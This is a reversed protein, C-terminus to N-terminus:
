YIVKGSDILVEMMADFGDGIDDRWTLGYANFDKLLDYAKEAASTARLGNGVATFLRGDPDAGPEYVFGQETTSWQAAFQVCNNAPHTSKPMSFHVPKNEIVPTGNSIPIARLYPTGYEFVTVGVSVQGLPFCRHANDSMRSYPKKTALDYLFQGFNAIDPEGMGGIMVELSPRGFRPTFEILTFEDKEPNYITNIDILGCFSGSIPSDVLLATFLKHLFSSEPTPMWVLASGVEGTLIGGRNRNQAGKYETYVYTFPLFTEGNYWVALAIEYGEAFKELRIGGNEESIFWANPVNQILPIINDKEKAKCILTRGDDIDPNSAPTQKLVWDEESDELFECVEDVSFFELREVPKVYQSAGTLTMLQAGWERDHELALVAGQYGIYPIGLSSVVAAADHKDHWDDGVILLDCGENILGMVSTAQKFNGRTPCINFEEVPLQTNVGEVYVVLEHGEQMIRDQLSFFRQDFLGIKM